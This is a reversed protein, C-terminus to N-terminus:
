QKKPVFYILFIRPSHTFIPLGNQENEVWQRCPNKKVKTEVLVKKGKMVKGCVKFEEQDLMPIDM